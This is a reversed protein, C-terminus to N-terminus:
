RRAAARVGEVGIQKLTHLSVRLAEASAAALRRPQHRGHTADRFRPTPGDCYAFDYKIPAEADDMAESTYLVGELDKKRHAARGGHSSARLAAAM